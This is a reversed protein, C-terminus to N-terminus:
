LGLIQKKKAEFEEETIIGENKLQNLERLSNNPNESLDSTFNQQHATFDGTQTQELKRSQSKCILVVAIVIGAIVALVVFIIVLLFLLQVVSNMRLSRISYYATLIDYVILKKLLNFVIRKHNKAYKKDEQM